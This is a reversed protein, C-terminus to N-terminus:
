GFIKKINTSYSFFLTHCLPLLYFDGAFVTFFNICLGRYDNRRAAAGVYIVLYDYGPRNPEWGIDIVNNPFDKVHDSIQAIIQEIEQKYGLKLSEPIGGSITQGYTSKRKKGLYIKGGDSNALAVISKTIFGYSIESRDQYQVIYTNSPKPKFYFNTM